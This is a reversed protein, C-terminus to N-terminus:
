ATASGRREVRVDERGPRRERAERETARRRERAAYVHWSLALLSCPTATPSARSSRSEGPVGARVRADGDPLARGVGRHVGRVEALDDRLPRVSVPAIEVGRRGIGDAAERVVLVGVRVAVHVTSDYEIVPIDCATAISGVFPHPVAPVYKTSSFIQATSSTAWNKPSAGPPPPPDLPLEPPPELSSNPRPSPRSSPRSSRTAARAPTPRPEPPFELPLEPAPALAPGSPPAAAAVVIGQIHRQGRRPITRSRRSRARRAKPDRRRRPTAPTAYRGNEGEADHRARQESAAHRARGLLVIGEAEQGPRVPRRSPRWVWASAAMRPGCPANKVPAATFVM